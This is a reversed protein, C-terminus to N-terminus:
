FDSVDCFFFEIISILVIGLPEFGQLLHCFSMTERM